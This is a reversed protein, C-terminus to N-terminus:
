SSGDRKLEEFSENSLHPILREKFLREHSKIPKSTPREMKNPAISGADVHQLNSPSERTLIVAPIIITMLLLMSVVAIFTYRPIWGKKCFGQTSIVGVIVDDIIQVNTIVENMSDENSQTQPLTTGQLNQENDDNTQGRIGTVPFAGLQAETQLREVLDKITRGQYSKSNANSEYDQTDQNITSNKQKQKSRFFHENNTTSVEQMDRCDVKEKKPMTHLCFRRKKV